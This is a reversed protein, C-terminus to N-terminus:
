RMEIKKEGGKGGEGEREGELEEVLLDVPLPIKM